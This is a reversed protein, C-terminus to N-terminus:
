KVLIKKGDVIYIGRSLEKRVSEVSVQSRIRIGQLTYVDVLRDSKLMVVPIGDASGSGGIPLYRSRVGANNSFYAEFPRVNRLGEVFVGGPLYRIGEDTTYEEDNLAYVHNGASKGEYSGLLTFGNGSPPSDTGATAKVTVNESMFTITGEINFAEEYEESNPVEMIFPQNANMSQVMAFVRAQRQWGGLWFPLTTSFDAVGFPALRGKEESVVTQVDFPLVIGEWGGAMGVRTEKHFERSYSISWAMFDRPNRFPKRDTLTIRGAVGDVVVNGDFSCNPHNTFVLMNGYEAAADFSTANVPATANWEVALLNHCGSFAAEDVSAVSTPIVVSELVEADALAHASIGRVPLGFLTDAVVIDSALEETYGTVDYAERGDNLTYIIGQGDTYSYVFRMYDISTLTDTGTVDHLAVYCIGATTPQCAFTDTVEEGSLTLLTEGLPSFLDVSCPQSVRFLLEDTAEAELKYWRISDKAPTKDTRRSHPMLWIAETVERRTAADAYARSEEASGGESNYFRVHLDNKAYIYPVDKEVEFHYYSPRIPYSEVELQQVVNYPNLNTTNVVHHHEENDNVWYDYRVVDTHQKIFHHTCSRVVEGQENVLMCLLQHVGEPLHETDVDFRYVGDQSAPAEQITEGGDLTYRCVLREQEDATRVRWFCGSKVSVIVGDSNKVELLVNHMGESLGNVDLDWQILGGQETLQEEAYLTEDVYCRFLFTEEATLVRMFTSSRVPSYYGGKEAALQYYLTHLGEDLSSVDIWQVDDVSLEAESVLTDKDFWYRCIVDEQEKTTNVRWFFGSKVSVIVGDSNKVEVLVNHMGEPLRNVDLDWQILGGQETLQEKAYLAEDVYCRFLFTEDATLVRMFTASRVASYIGNDGALQYYLTHLGEDLASVDITQVGNAGLTTETMQTAKDFWHRVTFSEPAPSKLKLFLHQRPTSWVDSTDRVQIYLRHMAESLASVDIEVKWAATDATGYHTVRQENDFWYRYAYETVQGQVATFLALFAALLYIIKTNM